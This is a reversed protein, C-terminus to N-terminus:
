YTENKYKTLLVECIESKVKWDYSLTPKNNIYVLENSWQAEYCYQKQIETPWFYIALILGIVTTM